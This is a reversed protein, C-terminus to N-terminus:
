LFTFILTSQMEFAMMISSRDINTLFLSKFFIYNIPNMLENYKILHISKFTNELFGEMGAIQFNQVLEM